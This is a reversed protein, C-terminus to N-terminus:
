ELLEQPSLDRNHREGTTLQDPKYDDHVFDIFDQNTRMNKQAEKTRKKNTKKCQKILKKPNPFNIGQDAGLLNELEEVDGRRLANQVACTLTDGCGLILGSPDIFNM